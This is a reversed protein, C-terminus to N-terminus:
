TITRPLAISILNMLMKNLFQRGKIIYLVGFGTASLTPKFVWHKVYYTQIIKM